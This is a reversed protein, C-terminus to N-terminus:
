DDQALGSQLYCQWLDKQVFLELFVEPRHGFFGAMQYTSGLKSELAADWKTSSIIVPAVLNTPVSGYYGVNKFGRLYWPLPWFDNGNATFQIIM